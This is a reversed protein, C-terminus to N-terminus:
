TQDVKRRHKCQGKVSLMIHPLLDKLVELQEVVAKDNGPLGLIMRDAKKWGGCRSLYANLSYKLSEQRLLEGIGPIVYDTIKDLTQPTIDRPGLGTGGSIVILDSYEMADNVAKILAEPEDPIIVVAEDLLFGNAQLWQHAAPGSKDPYIGQFARDSSVIVSARFDKLSVSSTEM